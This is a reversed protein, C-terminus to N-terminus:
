LIASTSVELMYTKPAQQQQLERNDSSKALNMPHLPTDSHKHMRSSNQKFPFVGIIGQTTPGASPNMTFIPAGQQEQPKFTGVM